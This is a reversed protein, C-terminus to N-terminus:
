YVLFERKEYELPHNPNNNNILDIIRNEMIEVIKRIVSIMATINMLIELDLILNQQM